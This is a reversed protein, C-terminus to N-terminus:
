VNITLPCLQFGVNIDYTHGMSEYVCHRDMGSTYEGTKFATMAFAPSTIAILTIAIILKKM